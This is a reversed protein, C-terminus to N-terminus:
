WVLCYGVLGLRVLIFVAIAGLVLGPLLLVPWWPSRLGGPPPASMASLREALGGLSSFAALLPVDAAGAVALLASRLRIRAHPVSGAATEDAWRELAIRLTRASARAPPWFWAGREVASAMALYRGHALQLHATEHACVLDIQDASLADVLGATLLVQGPRSRSGPVSLALPRPDPLVVVECSRIQSLRVGVSPEVWADKAGRRGKWLSLAGRILVSLTVLLASMGFGWWDSALQGFVRECTGAETSLGTASLAWPASLLLGAVVTVVMGCALAVACLVSWTGPHLRRGIGSLLRPLALLSLGTAALVLIM